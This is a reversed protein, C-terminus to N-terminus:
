EKEQTLKEKCNTCVMKGNISFEAKEKGCEQCIEPLVEIPRPSGTKQFAM